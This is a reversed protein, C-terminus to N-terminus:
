SRRGQADSAKGCETQRSQPELYQELAERVIPSLEPSAGNSRGRAFITLKTYLEPTLRITLRIDSLAKTQM